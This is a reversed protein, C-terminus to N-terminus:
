EQDKLQHRAGEILRHWDFAPGPDVKIEQLHYHGILGRYNELVADPLKEHIPNGEADRPQDLTILPFIRHLTATLKILAAYQEATFDYQRLSRGNITGTIVEARNPRAIYDCQHFKPDGLPAPVRMVPKGEEDPVFWEKLEDPDEPGFAGVNAIEIGISRSNSERAHYARDRLDLTQYITGDLDLLFHASLGRRQLVVFCRRSFGESDYHLVFQDVYSQLAPLDWPADRDVWGKEPDPLRRGGHNANGALETPTFEYANYGGKEKWTIVRTGTHFPQGDILIVDDSQIPEATTAAPLEAAEPPASKEPATQCATLFLLTLSLAVQCWPREVIVVRVWSIVSKLYPCNDQVARLTDRNM